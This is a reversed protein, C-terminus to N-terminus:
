EGQVVKSVGCNMFGPVSYYAALETQLAATSRNGGVVLKRSLRINFIGVNNRPMPTFSTPEPCFSVVLKKHAAPNHCKHRAGFSLNNQKSAAGAAILFISILDVPHGLRTVGVESGILPM